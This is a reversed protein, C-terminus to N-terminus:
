FFNIKMAQDNDFHDDVVVSKLELDLCLERLNELKPLKLMLIENGFLDVHRLSNLGQLAKENM